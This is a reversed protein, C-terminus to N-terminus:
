METLARTCVSVAQASLARARVQVNGMFSAVVRVHVWTVSMLRQIMELIMSIKKEPLYFEMKLSYIVFHLYTIFFKFFLAEEFTKAAFFINNIYILFSFGCCLCLSYMIASTINWQFYQTEGTESNVCLNRCFQYSDLHLTGDM